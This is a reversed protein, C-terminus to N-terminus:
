DMVTHHCAAHGRLGLAADPGQGLPHRRGVDDIALTGWARNSSTNVSEPIPVM